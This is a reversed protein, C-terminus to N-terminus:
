FIQNNIDSKGGVKGGVIFNQRCMNMQRNGAVKFDKIVRIARTKQSM